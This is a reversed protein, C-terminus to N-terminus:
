YTAVTAPQRTPRVISFGGAREPVVMRRAKRYARLALSVSIPIPQRIIAVKRIYHEVTWTATSGAPFFVVDGASVTRSRTHDKLTMGGEVVSVTEDLNYFWNFRGASCDWVVTMATNDDTTTLVCSRALPAGELIWDAPIPAPSLEVRSSAVFIDVNGVSRM